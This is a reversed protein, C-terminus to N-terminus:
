IWGSVSRISWSPVTVPPGHIEHVEWAWAIWSEDQALCATGPQGHTEQVEWAWATWVGWSETLAYDWTPEKDGASGLGLSSLNRLTRQFGLGLQAM